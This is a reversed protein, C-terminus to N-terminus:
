ACSQISSKSSHRNQYKAWYSFRFQRIEIIKTFIEHIPGQTLLISQLANIYSLRHPQSARRCLILFLCFFNKQIKSSIDSLLHTETDSIRTRASPIALCVHKEVSHSHNLLISIRVPRTIAMCLNPFTVFIAM